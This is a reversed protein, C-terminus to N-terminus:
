YDQANKYFERIEPDKALAAAQDVEGPTDNEVPRPKRNGSAPRRRGSQKRLKETTEQQQRERDRQQIYEGFEMWYARQMLVEAPPVQPETVGRKIQQAIISQALQDAAQYVKARNALKLQDLQRTKGDVVARGFVDEDMQDFLNHAAQERQLERQQRQQQISQQNYQEVRDLREQLTKAVNVLGLVQDDYGAEKWADVDLAPDADAQQASQQQRPDQPPAQQQQPPPVQQRAAELIARDQARAQSQFHNLDTFGERMEEPTLGYSAGLEEFGSTWDSEEEVQTDGEQDVSEDAADDEPEDFGDDGEEVAGETEQPEEEQAEVEPTQDEDYVGEAWEDTVQKVIDDIDTDIM